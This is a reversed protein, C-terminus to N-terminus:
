APYGRSKKTGIAAYKILVDLLLEAKIAQVGVVNM